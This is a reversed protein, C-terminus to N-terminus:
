PVVIIGLHSLPLSDVQQCQLCPNSEQTLFIGQLIFHFGSWYEQRSFGISLPPQCAVTHPMIYEFEHGNLRHHWGAMEDETTREGGAGLGEWCWPRKWDTLEEWSTALTNSNWSWCWDKWHVGLVSRRWFPSIPYRQLRLSEWSDEGVGCNM